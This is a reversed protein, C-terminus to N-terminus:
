DELLNIPHYSTHCGVRNNIWFVSDIFFVKVIFSENNRIKYLQIRLAEIYFEIEDAINIKSRM